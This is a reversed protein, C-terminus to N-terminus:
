RGDEELEKRLLKYKPYCCFGSFGFIYTDEAIGNEELFQTAWPCNNVDVFFEDEGCREDPLNVSLTAYPGDDCWLQLAVRGKPTRYEDIVLKVDVTEDTWLDKVKYM